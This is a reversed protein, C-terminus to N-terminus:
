NALVFQSSSIHISSVQVAEGKRIKVNRQMVQPNMFCAELTAM